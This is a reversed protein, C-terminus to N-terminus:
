WDGWFDIVVVKGRYDSLKFEVGDLDTGIIDPAINGIVLQMQTLLQSALSGISNRGQKADAFDEVCAELLSKIESSLDEPSRSGVVAKTLPHAQGGASLDQQINTLYQALGFTAGGVVDLHPSKEILEKLWPETEMTPGSARALTRVLETLHESDIYASILEQHASAKAKGKTRNLFWVLDRINKRTNDRERVIDLVQEVSDFEMTRRQAIISARERNDTAEEIQDGLIAVQKRLASKIASIQKAPTVVELETKEVPNTETPKEDQACVITTSLGLTSACGIAILASLFWRGPPPLFLM